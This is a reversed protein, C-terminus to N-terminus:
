SLRQSYAINQADAASRQATQDERRLSRSHTNETDEVSAEHMLSKSRKGLEM